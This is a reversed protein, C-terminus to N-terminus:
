LWGNTLPGVQAPLQAHEGGVGAPHEGEGSDLVEEKNDVARDVKDYVAKKAGLLVNQIRFFQHSKWCLINLNRLTRVINM